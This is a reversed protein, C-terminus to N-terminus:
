TLQTANYTQSIATLYTLSDGDMGCVAFDCVVCVSVLLDLSERLALSEGVPTLIYPSPSGSPKMIPLSLSKMDKM